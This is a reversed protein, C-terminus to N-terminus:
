QCRIGLILTAQGGAISPGAVFFPHGPTIAVRTNLLTQTGRRLILRLRPRQNRVTQLHLEGSIGDPLQFTQPTSADLHLSQTNLLEFASFGNTAGLLVCLSFAVLIPARTM